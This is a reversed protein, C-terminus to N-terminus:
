RGPPPASLRSPRSVVGSFGVLLRVAGSPRWRAAADGPVVLDIEAIPRNLLVDRVAGGVLYPAGAPWPQARERTALRAAAVLSAPM